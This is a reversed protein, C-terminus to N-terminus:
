ECRGTRSLSRVQLRARVKRKPPRFLWTRSALSRSTESFSLPKQPRHVPHYICCCPQQQLDLRYKAWAWSTRVRESALGFVIVWSVSRPFTDGAAGPRIGGSLKSCSNPRRRCASTWEQGGRRRPSFTFRTLISFFSFFSVLGTHLSFCNNRKVRFICVVRATWESYKAICVGHWIDTGTEM